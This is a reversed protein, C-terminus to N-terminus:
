SWIRLVRVCSLYLGCVFGCVKRKGRETMRVCCSSYDGEKLGSDVVLAMGAGGVSQLM